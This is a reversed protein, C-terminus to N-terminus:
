LRSLVKPRSSTGLESLVLQKVEGACGWSTQYGYGGHGYCHVVKYGDRRELELRVGGQRLPRFGVHHGVLDQMGVGIAAKDYQAWRSLMRQTFEADPKAAQNMSVFSTPSYCGGVITGGGGPRQMAYTLEGDGPGTATLMYSSDRAVLAVQGRVPIMSADDVGRLTRAGLGTCNVVVNAGTVGHVKFADGIHVLRTRKVQVGHKLCQGLLWPLYITPDICVSQFATKYATGPPDSSITDEVRFQL